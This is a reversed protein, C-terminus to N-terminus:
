LDEEILHLGEIQWEIGQAAWLFFDNIKEEKIGSKCGVDYISRMEKESIEHDTVALFIMERLIFRKHRIDSITKLDKILEESKKYKKINKLDEASLGIDEAYTKLHDKSFVKGTEFSLIYTLAQLYIIKENDELNTNFIKM